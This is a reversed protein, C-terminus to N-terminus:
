GPLWQILLHHLIMMTGMEVLGLPMFSLHPSCQFLAHPHVGSGLVGWQKYHGDELM